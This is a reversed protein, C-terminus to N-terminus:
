ADEEEGTQMVVLSWVLHRVDDAQMANLAEVVSGGDRLIQCLREFEMVSERMYRAAQDLSDETSSLAAAHHEGGEDHPDDMAM